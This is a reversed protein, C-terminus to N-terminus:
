VCNDSKFVSEAEEHLVQKTDALFHLYYVTSRCEEPAPTVM